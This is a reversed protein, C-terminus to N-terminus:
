PIWCTAVHKEVSYVCTILRFKSGSGDSILNYQYYGSEIINTSHLEYGEELLTNIKKFGIMPLSSASGAFFLGLVVIGLIKKM